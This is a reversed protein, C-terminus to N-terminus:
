SIQTHINEKKIQNLEVKIIRFFEYWSTKVFNKGKIQPVSSYLIWSLINKSGWSRFIISLNFIISSKVKYITLNKLIDWNITWHWFSLFNSSYFTKHTGMKWDQVMFLTLIGMDLPATKIQIKNTSRKISAKLVFWPLTIIDQEIRVEVM